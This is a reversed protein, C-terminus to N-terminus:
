LKVKGEDHIRRIVGEPPKALPGWYFVGPVMERVGPTGTDEDGDAPCDCGGQASCPGALKQMVAAHGENTLWGERRLEHVLERTLRTVEARLERVCEPCGWAVPDIDSHKDCHHWTLARRMREIEATQMEALVTAQQLLPQVKDLMATDAVAQANALATMRKVEGEAKERRQQEAELLTRTNHLSGLLNAVNAPEGTEALERWISCGQEAEEARERWKRGDQEERNARAFEHELRDAYLERQKVLEDQLGRRFAASLSLDNLCDALELKTQSLEIALQANEAIVDGISVGLEGNPMIREYKMWCAAMQAVQARLQRNDSQISCESPQNDSV